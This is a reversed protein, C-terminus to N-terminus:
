GLKGLAAALSILPGAKIKVAGKSKIEMNGSAKYKTLVESLDQFKGKVKEDVSDGQQLCTTIKRELTTIKDIEEDCKLDADTYTAIKTKFSEELAKHAEDINKVELAVQDTIIKEVVKWHAKIKVDLFDKENQTKTRKQNGEMTTKIGSLKVLKFGGLLKENKNGKTVEEKNGGYLNSVFGVNLKLKWGVTWNKNWGVLSKHAWGHVFKNSITTGVKISLGLTKVFNDGTTEEWWDNAILYKDKISSWSIGAAVPPPDPLDHSEPKEAEKTEPSM